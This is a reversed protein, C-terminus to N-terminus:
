VRVRLVPGGQEQSLNSPSWHPPPNSYRCGLGTLRLLLRHLPFGTGPSIVQSGQEQPIHIHPGPGGSKPSYWLLCYLTTTLETPSPSSLSMEPLAWFCNYSYIVSVDEQWLPRGVDLFVCSDSLFCFDPWPSWIPAALVSQGVSRRDYSWKLKLKLKSSCYISCLGILFSWGVGQSPPNCYKKRWRVRTTLPSPFPVWYYSIDM